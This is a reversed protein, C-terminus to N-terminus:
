PTSNNNLRKRTLIFIPIGSMTLCLGILSEYPFTVITNVFLAMCIVFFLIPLWPYFWVKYPRNLDPFKHRLIILGITVFGFFLWVVVGTFFLLQNFNGMLV